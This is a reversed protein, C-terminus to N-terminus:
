LADEGLPSRKQYYADGSPNPMRQLLGSRVLRDCAAQVNDPDLKLKFQEEVEQQIEFVGKKQMDALIVM